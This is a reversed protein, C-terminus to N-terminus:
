SRCVGVRRSVARLLTQWEDNGQGAFDGSPHLQVTHAMRVGTLCSEPVVTIYQGQFGNAQFGRPTAGSWWQYGYSGVNEDAADRAPRRNMTAETVWSRSVVQRGGVAQGGNRMLEGFRLFDVPRAFLSMSAVAAGTRDTMIDADAEMGTPRWVKEAITTSLPRAYVSELLWGLVQTNASNYNFATGQPAVRPLALLFENRTKGIRGGSHYDLALDIWQLFQDNATIESTHEDWKVGSRMLLINRITTGQWASGRVGPVYREIPEDLSSIRGEDVAIGVLTSIVSKTTSWGHHATTRRYGNAYFEAIMSGDRMLLLADTQTDRIFDRVTKTRGSWRYSVSGIDVPSRMRPLTNATGATIPQHPLFLDPKVIDTPLPLLMRNNTIAEHTWNSWFDPSALTTAAGAALDPLAPVGLLGGGRAVALLSRADTVSPTPPTADAPASSLAAAISVVLALASKTIATM